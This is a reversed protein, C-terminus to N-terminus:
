LRVAFERERSMFFLTGLILIVISWIGGAIWWALPPIEGHVLLSSWGGLMSYLPNLHMIWHPIGLNDLHALPMDPYWLIPSLYLWARMMYQLFNGIDRFYVQMAAFIMATGSAFLILMLFFVPAFVAQWHLPRGFSLMLVFFIVLTPLFKFFATRVEALPLLLRPFSMNLLLKGGGVVSSAGQRVCGAHFYYAFLASCLYVFREVNEEFPDGAGRIIMVLLFYVCALLLPNLVLWIQGFFTNVNDARISARSMEVAFPRRQWLAKFYARLRPLGNRHPEYVHVSSTFDEDLRTANM